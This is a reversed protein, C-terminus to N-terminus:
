QLAQPSPSPQRDAAVGPERRQGDFYSSRTPARGLAMRRATPRRPRRATSCTVQGWRGCGRLGLRNRVPLLDRIRRLRSREPLGDITTVPKRLRGHDHRGPFPRQRGRRPVRRRRAQPRRGAPHQPSDLGCVGGLRGLQRRRRHQAQADRDCRDGFLRDHGRPDHHLFSRRQAVHHGDSRRHRAHDHRHPDLVNGASDRYQVEVTKLGDGQQITHSVSASYATWDGWNGGGDTNRKRMEVAGSVASDVTVARTTTYSAGANLSMTGVPPADFAITDFFTSINGQSDQFQVYVAKEGDGGPLTATGSTAYPEWAETDFVGDTSLRMSTVGNADNASLALSAATHSTESAGGDISISGTPRDPRARERPAPDRWRRRGRLGCRCWGAVRREHSPSHRLADLRKRAVDWRDCRRRADGLRRQLRLLVRVDAHRYRPHRRRRWLDWPVRVHRVTGATGVTWIENPDNFSAFDPFTPLCWVSRLDSGAQSQGRLTYLDPRIEFFTGGSGVMAGYGPYTTDFQISYLDATTGTGATYPSSPIGIWNITQLAWNAGGDTTKLVTGADGVAWGTTTDTFCLGNLDNSTGSSQAVWTTGGDTTGLITGNAGAAWGTTANKFFVSNLDNSTHSSRVADLHPRRRDHLHDDRWDRGGVRPERRRGVCVESRGDRRLAAADLREHQVHGRRLLLLPQRRRGPVPREGDQTAAGATLTWDRTASFAEWPETDFVGDNSIRMAAVGSPDTAALDLTVARSYTEFAGGDISITGVPGAPDVEVVASDVTFVLGHNAERNGALDEVAWELVHVGPTSTSATSGSTWEGGDLRFRVSGVASCTDEASIHITATGVYSAVADSSSFPPNRDIGLSVTQTASRNGVMDVVSYTVTHAGEAALPINYHMSSASSKLTWDGVASQGWHDSPDVGMGAGVCSGDRKIGVANYTGGSVAVIDTWGSVDCQGHSNSGVAVVTGDSKLGYLAASEGDGFIAVIDHWGSVDYGSDTVVTGDSKLGFAGPGPAAIAVIDHWGSVNHSGGFGNGAAVVTGDRKLGLDYNGGASIAIIDNWGSTDVKYNAYAPPMYGYTDMVTGDRMLGVSHNQAVSIAVVDTWTAVHSVQWWQDDGVAVVTGDSKLGVTHGWGAGVATIGTWDGVGSANDGNMDLAVVTGHPTLGVTHAVGAAIYARAGGALSAPVGDISYDLYGVGSLTDTASIGIGVSHNVWGSPADDSFDPAGRDLAIMDIYSISANGLSDQYQVYVWKNGDAGLLTWAHTGAVLEWAETDFVGDDSLRMQTAGAPDSASLTLLINPDATAVDRGNIAITGTPGTTDLTISDTLPWADGGANRYEVEVTKTGDGADLTFAATEAYATWEGWTGGANRARMQVAAAVSSGISVAPSNTREAGGNISMTGHDAPLVAFPVSQTTERNGALDVSLFELTHSGIATTTAVSGAAWEDDDIRFSTSAVASCADEASINITATTDYTPVADTSSVPPNHDIRATATQTASANGLDDVASYTITTTGEGVPVNVRLSAAGTRLSWGSVDGITVGGVEGPTVVVTGDSKLGYVAMGGAAIAVIDHWSSVDCQTSGNTSGAVVVTGDSKLGVTHFGGAAIATIGTWGSVGSNPGMGRDGATVVTGDSKLGVAHRYGSDIAVVDHWSAVESTVWDDNDGLHPTGVVTGDRKLGLTTHGGASVAKIGTWGSVDCQGHSNSGTAVVTGDSKLGVTFSSPDFLVMPDTGASVATIGSWGSVNGEGQSNDGTAVVTGDSKLGVTFDGAASVSVISDWGTTGGNNSVVTGDSQVGIAGDYGAAISAAAGSVRMGSAGNISYNLSGVGAIDEASLEVSVPASAWDAPADDSTTPGATDLTIGDFCTSVHGLGDQFQAYAFRPGDAGAALTLVRLTSFPEWFETDFVGDASVRMLTVGSPDSATLTLLVETSKTAAAGGNILVTGTPGATDLEITDSATGVTGAENRYEGEVTKVGDGSTLSLAVTAAYPQWASWTGVADRLRMETAGTVESYVTVGTTSAFSAGGNISLTGSPSGTMLTITDSLLTTADGDRYEAEVTKLGDGTTLTLPATAAYPQWGSWSGAADRVRMDLAGMVSSDVTVATTAVYGAGANVSMTGLPPGGPTAEVSNSLASINNVSDYTKLAFHYQTGPALGTM